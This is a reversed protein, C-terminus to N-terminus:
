DDENLIPKMNLQFSVLPGLLGDAYQLSYHSHYWSSGYQRAEWTYVFTSGPAIPCQSIGPVGDMHMTLLQRIGHWHVSTGNRWSDDETSANAVTVTVNVTDGWCAQIWPGPYQDNYYKGAPFVQGDLNLTANPGITLSYNRQIGIPMVAEYDTSIDFNAGNPSKPNRLWCGRDKPSSCETWGAM